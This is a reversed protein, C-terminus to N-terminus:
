HKGQSGCPHCTSTNKPAEYGRGDYLKLTSTRVYQQGMEAVAPVSVAHARPEIKRGSASNHATGEKM